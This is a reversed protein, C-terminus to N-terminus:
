GCTLPNGRTGAYQLSSAVDTFDVMQQNNRLQLRNLCFLAFTPAFIDRVGRCAGIDRDSLRPDVFRRYTPEPLARTM